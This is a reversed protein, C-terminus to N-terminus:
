IIEEVTIVREVIIVKVYISFFRKFRLYIRLSIQQM